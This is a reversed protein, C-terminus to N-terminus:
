TAAALSMLVLSLELMLAGACYLRGLGKYIVCGLQCLFVSPYRFSQM